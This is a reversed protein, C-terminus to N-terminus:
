SEERAFHLRALDGPGIGAHWCDAMVWATGTTRLITLGHDCDAVVHGYLREGDLWVDARWNM